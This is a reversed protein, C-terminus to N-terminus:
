MPVSGSKDLVHNGFTVIDMNSWYGFIDRYCAPKLIRNECMM